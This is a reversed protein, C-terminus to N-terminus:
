ERPLHAACADLLDAVVKAVPQTADVRVAGFREYGEDTGAHWALIRALEEKTGGFAHPPRRALRRRITRSDVSLHIVLAFQSWIENENEATGCIFTLTDRADAAFRRVTEPPVRQIHLRFWEDTRQAAATPYPVESGSGIEFYRALHDQDTDYATYGRRRLETCMTSKGAGSTGTVWVLPM